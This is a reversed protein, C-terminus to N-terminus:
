SPVYTNCGTIKRPPQGFVGADVPKDQRGLHMNSAHAETESLNIPILILPGLPCRKENSRM